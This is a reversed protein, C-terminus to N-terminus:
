PIVILGLARVTSLTTEVDDDWHPLRFTFYQGLNGIVTAGAQLAAATNELAAPTGMVFDGFHPAAPAMQTLARFADASDLILGTGKPRGRRLAAPYGM